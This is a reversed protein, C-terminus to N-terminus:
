RLILLSIIEDRGILAAKNYSRLCILEDGINFQEFELHSCCCLFGDHLKTWVM